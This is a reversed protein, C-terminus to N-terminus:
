GFSTKPGHRAVYHCAVDHESRKAIRRGLADYSFTATKGYSTGGRM